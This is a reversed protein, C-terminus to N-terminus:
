PRHAPYPGGSRVLRSIPRPQGLSSAARLKIQRQRPTDFSSPSEASSTASYRCEQPRAARVPRGSTRGAEALRRNPGHQGAMDTKQRGCASYQSGHCPCAFGGVGGLAPQVLCGLHTCEARLAYPLLERADPEGSPKTLLFYPEGDLGLVLDPAAVAVKLWSTETVRVGDRDTVEIPKPPKAASARQAAPLLAAAAGAAAGWQIACRRGDCPQSCGTPQLGHAPSLTLLLGCLLRASTVTSSTVSSRTCSSGQSAMGLAIARFKKLSPPYFGVLLSDRVSKTRFSKRGGLM